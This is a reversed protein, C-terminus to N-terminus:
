GEGEGDGGDEEEEVETHDAISKDAGFVICLPPLGAHFVTLHWFSKFVM